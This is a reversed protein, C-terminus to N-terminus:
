LHPALPAVGWPFAQGGEESRQGPDLDRLLPRSGPGKLLYICSPFM